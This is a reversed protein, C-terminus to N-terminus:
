GHRWVELARGIRYLRVEAFAPGMLQVGVPLGCGDTGFPLSLAPIGAMSAPITFLDSTYMDVPDTKEGLKWATTAAVPSLLADCAAFAENFDRIMLTRVQMAKNYLEEYYGASLAYTGLMVRRKVEPGFGESRSRLYMEELDAYGDARRGYRVGDYRALNSSAEAGSVVFYAPLTHRATPLSVEAVRAGMAELAAAAREVARRVAPAM